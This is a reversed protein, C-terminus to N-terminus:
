APCCRGRLRSETAALPLLLAVDGEPEPAFAATRAELFGRGALLTRLRDELMFLPHSPCPAPASRDCSRPFADYGHRRAIEEILDIRAHVDYRRHGPVGVTV